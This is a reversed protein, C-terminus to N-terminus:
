ELKRIIKLSAVGFEMPRGVPRLILAFNFTFNFHEIVKMYNQNLNEKLKLRLSWLLETHGDSKM